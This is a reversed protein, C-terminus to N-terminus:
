WLMLLAYACVLSFSFMFLFFFFFFIELNCSKIFDELTIKQTRDAGKFSKL